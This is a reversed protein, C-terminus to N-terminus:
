WGPHTGRGGAEGGREQPPQLALHRSIKLRMIIKRSRRVSQFTKVIRLDNLAPTGWVWAM